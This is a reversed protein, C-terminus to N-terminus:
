EIGGVEDEHEEGLERPSCLLSYHAEKARHVRRLSVHSFGLTHTSSIV